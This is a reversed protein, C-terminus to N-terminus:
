DFLLPPAAASDAKAPTPRMKPGRLPEGRACWDLAPERNSWGKRPDKLRRINLKGRSLPPSPLDPLVGFVGAQVTAYCEALRRLGLAPEGFRALHLVKYCPDFWFM